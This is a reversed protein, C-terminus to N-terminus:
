HAVAHWMGSVRDFIKYGTKRSIDFERCLEAMPESAPSGCVANTRGDGVAASRHLTQQPTLWACDYGLSPAKQSFEQGVAAEDERYTVHLSGTQFYLLKTQGLIELWIERSRLAMQHLPGAPQGIPWIMGFNRVSAGSPVPDREFITVRRGAKRGLVHAGVRRNGRRCCSGGGEDRDDTL